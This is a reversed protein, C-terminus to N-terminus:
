LAKASQKPEHVTPFPDNKLFLGHTQNSFCLGKDDKHGKQSHSTTNQLLFSGGCKKLCSLFLVGWYLLSASSSILSEQFKSIM